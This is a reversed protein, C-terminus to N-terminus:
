FSELSENLSLHTLTNLQYIWYMERRRLKSFRYNINEAKPGGDCHCGNKIFSYAHGVPAHGTNGQSDDPTIVSNQQIYTINKMESRLQDITNKWSRLNSTVKHHNKKIDCQVHQCRNNWQGTKKIVKVCIKVM